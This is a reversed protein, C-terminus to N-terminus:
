NWRAKAWGWPAQGSRWLKLLNHTTGILLAESSAAELGRRMFRRFDQGEKVQGFVPEVVVGRLKYLARGRKTLLKREMRNRPSLGKPMRGRPCGRERLLKRQKWDKTTAILLEPMQPGCCAKINAESWYGADALGVKPREQIGAAELTHELTQLMPALQQVDNAEQTVGIAVIIQDKSVVAQVNYGQVYGNRSKMIRSDPDTTNAKAEEPPIREVRKPKRGRKKKGTAEEEAQRQGLHEQAAKAAGEAERELREKAEQLRKLRDERRGLGEPLEDGRRDAGYRGDEEADMAKAEALMRQVEESLAEHNRNAEPAANAAM